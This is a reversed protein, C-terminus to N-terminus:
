RVEYIGMVPRHDSPMVGKSDRLDFVQAGKIVMDSAGRSLWLYDIRSNRTNGAENGAYSVATGALKAEAWTDRFVTKMSSVEPTGPWANFDGAVLRSESFQGMFTKLQAIQTMRRTSSDADLHVSFLNLSRGNVVIRIQAVSRTYSLLGDASSELPFLSLLLVGHGSAAGTISAFNYYWRRGTHAQLIAALRAPQDENGWWTFREVENLSVVQAGTKAIAAGIRDINYVGDTGVGHHINWDLVKLITGSTGSPAPAPAASGLTVTLLPRVTADGAEDSFFEKYSDRSAAGADVVAIRSYRSSGFTGNVTARVLATVDFSVRSGSASTATATGYREALEGGASAWSAVASRRNWTTETEVYSSAIRHTALTRNEANGGQVTLTLVASAIATNIPITNQTDFRLVIRRVYTADSSARTSLVPEASLNTNAFEGGRLVTASSDTLNLTQATAGAATSALLALSGLARAGKGLIKKLDM